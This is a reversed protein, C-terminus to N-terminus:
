ADQLLQSFTLSTSSSTSFQQKEKEREEQEVRSVRTTLTLWDHAVVIELLSLLLLSLELLLWMLLLVLFCAKISLFDLFVLEVVLVILQVEDRFIVTLLLSDHLFTLMTLLSFFPNSITQTSISASTSSIALRRPAAFNCPFLLFISPDSVDAYM